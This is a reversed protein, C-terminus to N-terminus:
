KTSVQSQNCNIMWARICDLSSSSAKEEWVTPNMGKQEQEENCKALHHHPITNLLAPLM